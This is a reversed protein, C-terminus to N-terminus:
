ATFVIYVNISLFVGKVPDERKEWELRQRYGKHGESVLGKRVKQRKRGVKTDTGSVYFGAEVLGLWGRAFPKCHGHCHGHDHDLSHGPLSPLLAPRGGGGRGAKWACTNGRGEGWSVWDKNLHLAITRSATLLAPFQTSAADVHYKEAYNSTSQRPNQGQM